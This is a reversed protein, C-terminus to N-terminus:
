RRRAQQHRRVAREIKADQPADATEVPLDRREHEIAPDAIGTALWNKATPEFVDVIDGAKHFSWDKIMRVKM